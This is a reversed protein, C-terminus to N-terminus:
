DERTSFLAVEPKFSGMSLGVYKPAGHTKAVMKPERVKPAPYTKLAKLDKVMSAFELSGYSKAFKNAASHMMYGDPLPTISAITNHQKADQIAVYGIHDGTVMLLNENKLASLIRSSFASLKSM